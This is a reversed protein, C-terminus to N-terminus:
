ADKKGANGNWFYSLLVAISLVLLIYTGYEGPPPTDTVVPKLQGAFYRLFQEVLLILWAFPVLGRYRILVVLYVSVLVLQSAGWQSFIAVINDGGPVDINIGAISMAGGDPAFMHILSRVTSIIAIAVLLGDRWNLRRRVHPEAPLMINWFSNM